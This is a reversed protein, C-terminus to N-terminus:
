EVFKMQNTLNQIQSDIQSKVVHLEKRKNFLAINEETEEILAWAYSTIYKKGNYVYSWQNSVFMNGREKQVNTVTVGNELDPNRECNFGEGVIYMNDGIFRYNM